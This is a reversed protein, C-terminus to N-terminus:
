QELRWCRASSISIFTLEVMGYCCVAMNFVDEDPLFGMITWGIHTKWIGM